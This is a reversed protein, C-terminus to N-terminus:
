PSEVAIEIFFPDGFPLGDPSYAQWASRYTGVEEPATFVIQITSQTGSRAPYLAQEIKAGLEPGAVLRVRYREDWNCTGNNEVKWQKELSAGPTVITGDPITLDELFLLNNSCFPTPTPLPGVSITPTNLTVTIPSVPARRQDVTSVPPKFLGGEQNSAASNSQSGNCSTLYCAIILTLSLYIWGGYRFGAIKV